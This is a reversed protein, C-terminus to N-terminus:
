EGKIEISNEIWEEVMRKYDEFFETPTGHNYVAREYKSQTMYEKIEGSLSTLFVLLWTPMLAVGMKDPLCLKSPTKGDRRALCRSHYAIFDFYEHGFVRGAIRAAWLPHLEGEGGDINIKGWYGLDHIVICFLEKVSPLRKYLKVWAVVVFPPHLIFQHGGFLISKTGARV